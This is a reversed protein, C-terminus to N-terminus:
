HIIKEDIESFIELKEIKIKDYLPFFHNWSDKSFSILSVSQRTHVINSM